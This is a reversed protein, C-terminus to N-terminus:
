SDQVEDVGAIRTCKVGQDGLSPATNVVTRSQDRTVRGPTVSSVDGSSLTEHGGGANATTMASQYRSYHAQEDEGTYRHKSTVIIFM